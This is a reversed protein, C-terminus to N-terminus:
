GAAGAFSPAAPAAVKRRVKIAKATANIIEKGYDDANEWQEDAYQRITEWTFGKTEMERLKAVVEALPDDPALATPPLQPATPAQPTAPAPLRAPANGNAQPAQPRQAPQQRPAAPQAASHSDDDEAVLCLLSVLSYRRAYTIAGGLKQPDSPDKCIIPLASGISQGSEAHILETILIPNGQDSTFRQVVILGNDWLPGEITDLVAGLDAYYNKLHPNQKNKVVAGFDKMAALLAVYLKIPPTENM